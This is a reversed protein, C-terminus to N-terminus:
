MKPRKYSRGTYILFSLFEVVYFSFFFEEVDVKKEGMQIKLTPNKTLLLISCLHLRQPPPSVRSFYIANLLLFSISQFLLPAYDCEYPFFTFFFFDEKIATVLATGM